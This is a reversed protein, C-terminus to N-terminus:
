RGRNLPVKRCPAGKGDRVIRQYERAFIEPRRDLVLVEPLSLNLWAEHLNAKSPYVEATHSACVGRQHARGAGIRLNRGVVAPVRELDCHFLVRM